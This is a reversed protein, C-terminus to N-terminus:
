AKSVNTQFMGFVGGGRPSNPRWDGLGLGGAIEFIRTLVDLTILRPDVIVLDGEVSWQDFRPRVRVHKSRGIVARKVFLRFGHVNRVADSHDAFSRGMLSQLDRVNLTRGDGYSFRLYETSIMLGNQTAEKFTKKGKLPVRAGASRLCSMLMDTPVAVDGADDRHLYTMWTWPPSRDDGARSQDRNEPAKRWADLADASEVDDRHMLLPNLGRLEFHIKM